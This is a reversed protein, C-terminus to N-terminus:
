ATPIYSTGMDGWLMAVRGERGGEVEGGLLIQLLGIHHPVYLM